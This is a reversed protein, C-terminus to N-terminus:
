KSKASARLIVDVRRLEVGPPLDPLGRVEVQAAPVDVLRGNEEFFLHHHDTVNTDFYSRGAEVVVERILGARTFQHLTNYVTALSVRVGSETAEGHVQEATVHRDGRELLLRALALRQRTPRLDAARLRELAVAFPRSQSVSRM